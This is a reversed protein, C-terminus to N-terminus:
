GKKTRIGMGLGYFFFFNCLSFLLVLFSSSLSFSLASLVCFFLSLFLILSSTHVTCGVALAAQEMENFVGDSLELTMAM